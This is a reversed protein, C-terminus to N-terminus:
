LDLESVTVSVKPDAAVVKGNRPLPMELRMQLAKEFAPAARRLESTWLGYRDIIEQFEEFDHARITAKEETDDYRCHCLEHDILARRGISSLNPWVDGAIWIIFDLDILPKFKPPVKSAQGLIVRGNSTQAESRFLFGVKADLLDTHYLNIIEEALETVEPTVEYFEATM